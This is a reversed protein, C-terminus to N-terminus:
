APVGRAGAGARARARARARTVRVLEDFLAVLEPAREGVAARQRAVTQEDGRAVPGTLARESGLRGWNEVTARVLPLLMEREIGTGAALQEAAGELTVLFNSAISAAAHYAIRDGPAVEVARLGLAGALAYAVGLTQPTSGAVAAGAGTLSPPRGEGTFTMLPHLSFAPHPALVDLGTAGSCHGVTRGSAVSAAAAAIEGDPVCLLVIDAGSADAGRGLPGIVSLGAASFAAALDTGARGGGVLALGQPDVPTHAPPAQPNRELERMLFVPRHFVFVTAAIQSTREPDGTV